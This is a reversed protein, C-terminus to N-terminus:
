IICLSIVYHHIKSLIKWNKLLKGGWSIELLHYSSNNKFFKWRLAGLDKFIIIFFKFSGTLKRNNGTTEPSNGTTELQKRYKTVGSPSESNHM